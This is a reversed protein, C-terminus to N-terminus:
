TEPAARTPNRGQVPSVRLATHHVTSCKRRMCPRFGGRGALIHRFDGMEADRFRSLALGKGRNREQFQAIKM